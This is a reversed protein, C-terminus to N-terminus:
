VWLYVYQVYKPKNNLKVNMCVFFGGSIHYPLQLHFIVADCVLEWSPQKLDLM